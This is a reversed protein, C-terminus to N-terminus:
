PDQSHGWYGEKVILSFLHHLCLSLSHLCTAWHYLGSLSRTQIGLSEGVHHFSLVSEFLNDKSRQMQVSVACLLRPSVERVGGGLNRQTTRATMSSTTYVLSAELEVSIPRGRIESHQSQLCTAGYWGALNQKKLSRLAPFTAWKNSHKGLIGSTKPEM